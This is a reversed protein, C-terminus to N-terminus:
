DESHENRTSFRTVHLAVAPGERFRRALFGECRLRSGAPTESLKRAVDGFAVAHMECEVKRDGGAEHQLSRHHLTCDIAAIGAPTYRLDGRRALTATLLLRNDDGTL